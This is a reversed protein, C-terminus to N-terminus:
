RYRASQRLLAILDGVQWANLMKGKLQPVNSISTPGREQTVGTYTYATNATGKRNNGDSGEVSYTIQYDGQWGISATYSQSLTMFALTNLYNGVGIVWDVVFSYPVLEWATNIPDLLIRKPVFLGTVSGRVSYRCYTDLYLEFRLSNVNTRTAVQEHDTVTYSTGARESYITRKVDFETLAEHLDQADYLLPRVGYRLSLWADAIKSPDKVTQRWRVLGKALSTFLSRIKHAEAGFTLADWGKSYISAAAAHILSQANSLDPIACRPYPGDGFHDIMYPVGTFEAGKWNSANYTNGDGSDNPPKPNVASYSGGQWEGKYESQLFSTHPLIGGKRKLKHFNPINQGVLFRGQVRSTFNSPSPGAGSSYVWTETSTQKTPGETKYRKGM